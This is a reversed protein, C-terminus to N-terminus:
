QVSSCTTTVRKNTFLDSILCLGLPTVTHFFCDIGPKLSMCKCRIARPGKRSSEKGQPRARWEVWLLRQFISRLLSAPTGNQNKSTSIASNPWFLRCSCPMMNRKQLSCTFCMCPLIQVHKLGTELQLINRSCKLAKM